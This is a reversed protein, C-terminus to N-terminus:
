PQRQIKDMESMEEVKKSLMINKIEEIEKAMYNYREEEVQKPKKVEEKIEDLDAKVNTLNKVENQTKVVKHAVGGVTTGGFVLIMINLIENIQQETLLPAIVATAEPYMYSIIYGIIVMVSGVMGIITKYNDTKKSIWLLIPKLLLTSIIKNM